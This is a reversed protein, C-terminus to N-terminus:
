GSGAAPEGYYPSDGRTRRLRPQDLGVAM